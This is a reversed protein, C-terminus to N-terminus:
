SSGSAAELLREAVVEWSWRQHALDSGAAEMQAREAASLEAVRNIAGALSVIPQSSQFTLLGPRQLYEEVAAGVEGIGSHDPVIPLVGCAAAEAAVLGFAEPLVSPVALVDFRPLLKSLPEHDLHGIFEVEIGQARDFYDTDIQAVFRSLHNPGTIPFQLMAQRDRSKIATWLDKLQQDLAGAGVFVAKVQPREILPLSALLHHVGKNEILAGVFGVTFPGNPDRETPQFLDVDCGLNVVATRSGWGPAVALAASIMYRSGGIVTRAGSLGQIAFDRYRDQQKVAYELGSGHLQASYERDLRSCAKLGIFPGMVEHGIITVDPDHAQIAEELAAVNREVYTELEADSIELFTRVEFGPYPNRVFVPLISGINPVLVRCRGRSPSAGTEDLAFKRNDPSFNGQADVFDFRDADPQQCLLLVDHGNRRWERALSATFINSGSGWLLWGHWILIRM